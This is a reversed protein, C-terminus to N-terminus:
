TALEASHKNLNQLGLGIHICVCIPKSTKNVVVRSTVHEPGLYNHAMDPSRSGSSERSSPM